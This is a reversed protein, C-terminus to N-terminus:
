RIEIQDTLSSQSTPDYLGTVAVGENLVTKINEALQRARDDNQMKEIHFLGRELQDSEREPRGGRGIFREAGRSGDNMVLAPIAFLDAKKTDIILAEAEMSGSSRKPAYDKLVLYFCDDDGNILYLQFHAGRRKVILSVRPVGGAVSQQYLDIGQGNAVMEEPLDYQRLAREGVLNIFPHDPLGTFRAIMEERKEVKAM